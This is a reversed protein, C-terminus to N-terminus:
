HLFNRLPSHGIPKVVSEGWHVQIILNEGRYVQETMVNLNAPNDMHEGSNEFSQIQGGTSHSFDRFGGM